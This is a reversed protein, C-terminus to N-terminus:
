PGSLAQLAAINSAPVSADTTIGVMASANYGLATPSTLAVIQIIKLDLFHRARTRVTKETVGIDRAISVYSRRGNEQLHAIIKRDMDSLTLHQFLERDSQQDAATDLSRIKPGKKAM